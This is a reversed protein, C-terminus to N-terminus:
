LKGVDFEQLNGCSNIVLVPPTEITEYSTFRKGCNVCERRRRIMTGEETSRSDIVKSELCGCYMCKM